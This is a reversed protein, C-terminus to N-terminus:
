RGDNSRATVDIPKDSEMAAKNAESLEGFILALLIARRYEQETRPCGMFLLASTEEEIIKTLEASGLKPMTPALDLLGAPALAPQRTCDAKAPSSKLGAHSM